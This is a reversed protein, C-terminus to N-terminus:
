DDDDKGGNGKGKGKKGKGNGGANGGIQGRIEGGGFTSSHVNAYAAGARMARILEALENAAIGQAAVAVVDAAVITGTVEGSAPCAPKGGGGCLWAVIDGAVHQQAFHIHAVNATGELGSYSLRYRIQGNQLRASFSGRGTTSISPTEQYGDLRASFQGNGNGNGNQRGSASVAFALVLAAAVVTTAVAALTKRQM